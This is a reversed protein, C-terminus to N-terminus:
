LKLIGVGMSGHVLRKIAVRAMDLDIEPDNGPSNTSMKCCESDFYIYAKGNRWLSVKMLLSLITSTEM